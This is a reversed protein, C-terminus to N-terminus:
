VCSNWAAHMENQTHQDFKVITRKVEEEKVAALVCGDPSLGAFFGVGPDATSLKFKM